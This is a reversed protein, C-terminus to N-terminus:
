LYFMHAFFGFVSPFPDSRKLFLNQIFLLVIAFLISAWYAPNIRIFRKLMFYIAYKRDIRRDGVSYAIAFESIVFFVPVGLFGHSFIIKVFCPLINDLEHKMNGYLHFLVVGLAAIGRMGDIFHLRKKM